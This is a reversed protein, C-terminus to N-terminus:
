YSRWPEKVSKQLSRIYARLMKGLGDCLGSLPATKDEKTIGVRVSLLLLTEVEKTSGQAVKLFNVFNGASDRGYGEAINAAISVSARRIQSTLGYLEAPPFDSTLAYCREALEMAAQWVKLDRYSKISTM